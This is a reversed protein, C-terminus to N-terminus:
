RRGGRAFRDRIRASAERWRREAQAGIVSKAEDVVKLRPQYGARKVFKLIQTIRHGPLHKWVGPPLWGGGKALTNAGPAVAFFLASVGLRKAARQSRQSVAKGFRLQLVNIIQKYVPGPINGHSDLEAGKGQTTVWGAPLAGIRTLLFETKKQARSSAGKAGPRMFERAARGQQPQSDPFYVEAELRRASATSMFVGRLTYDTPRDFVEPMRRQLRGRVDSGLGNLMAATAYPVERASAELGAQVEVGDVTGRAKM